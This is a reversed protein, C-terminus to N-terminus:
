GDRFNSSRSQATGAMSRLSRGGAISLWPDAGSTTSTSVRRVYSPARGPAVSASCEATLASCDPSCSTERGGWRTHPLLRRIHATPDSLRITPATSPGPRPKWVRLFIWWRPHRRVEEHRISEDM